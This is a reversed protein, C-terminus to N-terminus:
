FEIIGILNANIEKNFIDKKNNAFQIVREKGEGKLEQYIKVYVSYTTEEKNTLKTTSFVYEEREKSLLNRLEIETEFVHEVEGSKFIIDVKKPKILNGFGVNEIEFKVQTSKSTIHKSFDRLVYRYGLHNAYYEYENTNGNYVDDEGRYNNAKWKKMPGYDGVGNIYSVHNTFAEKEVNELESFSKQYENTISPINGSFEGGYYTYQAQYNLWKNVEDRNIPNFTGLDSDSGLYGDNYFGVRRADIDLDKSLEICDSINSEKISQKYRKNFWYLFYSPRRLSVPIEEPINDLWTQTLEYYNDEVHSMPTSHQEGWPGFMRTEVTMIVDSYESIVVSLQEIHKKVLSMGQEPEANVYGSYTNGQSDVRLESEGRVNYSFAVVAVQGVNRCSQFIGRLNNLASDTIDRDIGYQTVKQGNVGNLTTSEVSVPANSSFHELGFRLGVYGVKYNIIDQGLNWEDWFSQNGEPKITGGGSFSHGREPNYIYEISETYDKNAYNGELVITLALCIAVTAILGIISITKQKNSKIM